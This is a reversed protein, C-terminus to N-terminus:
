NSVCPNKIEFFNKDEWLLHMTKKLFGCFLEQGGLLLHLLKAVSCKVRDGLRNVVLLKDM